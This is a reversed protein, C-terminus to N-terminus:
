FDINDKKKFSWWNKKNKDLKLYDLEERLYKNESKLQSNEKSKEALMSELAQIRERLGILQQEGTIEGTKIREYEDRSYTQIVMPESSESTIYTTESSRTFTNDNENNYEYDNSNESNNEFTEDDQDLQPLFFTASSISQTKQKFIAERKEFDSLAQPFNYSNTKRSIDKAQLIIRKMEEIIQEQFNLIFSYGFYLIDDEFSVINLMATQEQIIDHLEDLHDTERIDYPYVIQIKEKGTLEINLTIIPAYDTQYLSFWFLLEAQDFSELNKTRFFLSAGGQPDFFHFTKYKSLYNILFTSELPVPDFM